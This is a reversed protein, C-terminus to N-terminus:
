CTDIGGGCDMFNPREIDLEATPKHTAVSVVGAMTFLTGFGVIVIIWILFDKM